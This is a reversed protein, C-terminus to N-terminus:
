DVGIERKKLTKDSHCKTQSKPDFVVEHFIVDVFIPVEPELIGMDQDVAPSGLLLESSFQFLSLHYMVAVTILKVVEGIVKVDGVLLVM